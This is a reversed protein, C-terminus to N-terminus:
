KLLYIKKLQMLYTEDRKVILRLVTGFLHIGKVVKFTIPKHTLKFFIIQGLYLSSLYSKKDFFSKGSYHLIKASPLVMSNFGKKKARWTLEAEEFNLFFEENFLGIERIIKKRIFMNCGLVFEVATSHPFSNKKKLYKKGLLKIVIGKLAIQEFIVDFLNPFRGSSKVPQMNEDVLQAGVCWIKKNEEKEMLDYFIKLANNLL